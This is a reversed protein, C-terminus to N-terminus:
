IKAQKPHEFGRLKRLCLLVEIGSEFESNLAMNARWGMAFQKDVYSCAPANKCYTFARFSDQM